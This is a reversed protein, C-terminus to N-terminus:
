SQRGFKKLSRLGNLRLKSMWLYIFRLAGNLEIDVLVELSHYVRGCTENIEM